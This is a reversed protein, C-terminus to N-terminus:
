FRRRLREWELALRRKVEGYVRAALEDMDLEPTPKAAQGGGAAAEGAQSEGASPEAPQRQVAGPAAQRMAPKGEAGGRGVADSAQQPTPATTQASRLQAPPPTEGILEWLDAPLPGLGTEILEAEQKITVGTPAEVESEEPEASSGDSQPPSLSAQEKAEAPKPRPRRPTIVEVPSDTPQGPLVEQLAERVQAYEEQDLIETPEEVSPEGPSRQEQPQPVQRQVHWVEELPVPQFVQTAQPEESVIELLSPPEQLPLESTAEQIASPQSLEHDVEQAKNGPAEQAEARAAERKLMAKEVVPPKAMQETLEEPLLESRASEGVKESSLGTEQRTREQALPKTPLYDGTGVKAQPPGGTLIDRQVGVKSAPAPAEPEAKEFSGDSSQLLITQDGVQETGPQPRPPQEVEAEAESGGAQRVEEALRKEEHKRFITQLRKWIHDDTQPTSEPEASAQGLTQRRAPPEAVTEGKERAPLRSSEAPKSAPPRPQRSVARAAPRLPEPQTQQSTRRGEVRHSSTAEMPKQTEEASILDNGKGSLAPLEMSAMEEESFAEAEGEGPAPTLSLNATVVPFPAGWSSRRVILFDEGVGAEEIFGPTNGFLASVQAHRQIRRILANRRSQRSISARIRSLNKGERM